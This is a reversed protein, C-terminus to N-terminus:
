PAGLPAEAFTTRTPNENLLDNRATTVLLIDRARLIRRLEPASRRTVLDKSHATVRASVFAPLITDLFAQVWNLLRPWTAMFILGFAVDVWLIIRTLGGAPLEQLTLMLTM